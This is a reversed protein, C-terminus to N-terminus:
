RWVFWSRVTGWVSPKVQRIKDVRAHETLKRKSGIVLEYYLPKDNKKPDTETRLVIYNICNERKWYSLKLTKPDGGDKPSGVSWGPAIAKPNDPDDFTSNFIPYGWETGIEKVLNEYQKEINQKVNSVHCSANELVHERVSVAPDQLLADILTCTKSM